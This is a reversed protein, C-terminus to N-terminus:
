EYRLSMSPNQRSARVAHFSVTAMAILFALIGAVFFIWLPIEVRYAFSELWKKMAFWTLPWAIINALLVWKTFDLSLLRLINSTTAGNTKRIGIEKTKREAMFSALGFLGLCSILIAIVSFITLLSRTQKENKYIGDYHKDLIEYEFPIAPVYKEWDKQLTKIIKQYDSGAFRVSLYYPSRFREALLMLAHPRVEMHKSEWHYDKVVGIVEYPLTRDNWLYTIKGIPDDMELLKVATENLVIKGTDAKFEESFYRGSVMEMGMTEVYSEDTLNANLSFGQEVGEAGFGWNTIKDGPVWASASVQIVEPLTRLEDKYAELNEMYVINEVLVVQEKNFGLSNEMILNMQKQVLITAAILFIAVSFQFLVLINRFWSKSQKVGKFGLSDIASFNSMYLAPYIGSLLGVIISLALLGPIVLFNDLYHIEIEGGTFNRYPGMFSEVLGMALILALISIIIAESFFQHRLKKRSAGNTKRVGVERARISSSATTLNMFNICAVLLLLFAVISFIRVYAINGNPEFEGNLDSGLHIEKIHQLYLIWFNEDDSREEYSGEFLYKDVFAPLKAELQDEPFGPELRMYTEFNNAFWNQNNYLGDISVLSILMSFHFHSQAPFDEFVGMVTLPITDYVMIVKGYATEDGFYKRSTTRDLLVQGPENLVKGPSGELYNLTFVETFTSDVAAALDENYVLDGLTVKMSRDAIRTIAMIEPYEDYMALPMRAPTWTQRIVTNGIKADVAVRYIDDFHENYRDYNLEHNVYLMILVFSAIGIALGAINLISILLYKKIHRFTLKFYHKVM